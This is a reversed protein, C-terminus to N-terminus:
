FGAAKPSGTGKGNSNPYQLEVAVCKGDKVVPTILLTCADGPASPETAWFCTNGIGKCDKGKPNTGRFTLPAQGRIKEASIPEALRLTIRGGAEPTSREVRYIGKAIAVQKVGLYKCIDPNDIAFDTDYEFYRIAGTKPDMIHMKPNNSKEECCIISDHGKKIIGCCHCENEYGEAIDQPNTSPVSLFPGSDNPQSRQLEANQVAFQFSGTSRDLAYTGKQLTVNTYGLLAAVKSDLVVDEELTISQSNANPTNPRYVLVNPTGAIVQAQGTMANSVGDLIWTDDPPFM